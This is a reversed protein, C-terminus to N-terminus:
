KKNRYWKLAENYEEPTDIERLEVHAIKLPLNPSIMKYVHNTGSSLNKSYIKFLGTWEYDGNTRSFETAFEGDNIFDTKVYVPDKTYPQCVGIIEGDTNVFNDFDEKFFLIDGDLSIVTDRSYKKGLSLSAATKTNLYDHNFVFMIDKRYSCVVEILKEAQFGVVIRIDDYDDLCELQRIILPKGDIDILSKNSNLGLRSGRGACNVVITKTTPM